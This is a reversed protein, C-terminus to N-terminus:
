CPNQNWCRSQDMHDYRGDHIISCQVIRGPRSNRHPGLWKGSFKRFDVSGPSKGDRGDLKLISNFCPSSSPELVVAVGMLTQTTPARETQGPVEEEAELRHVPHVTVHLLTVVRVEPEVLFVRGVPMRARRPRTAM